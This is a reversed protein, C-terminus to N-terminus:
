GSQPKSYARRFFHYSLMKFYPVLSENMNRELEVHVADYVFSFMLIAANFKIKPLM